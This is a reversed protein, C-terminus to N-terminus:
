RSWSWVWGGDTQAAIGEVNDSFGVTQRMLLPEFMVWHDPAMLRQWYKDFAFEPVYWKDTPGAVENRLHQKTLDGAEWLTKRLVPIYDRRVAYAGSTQCSTISRLFPQSTANGKDYACSLFIVPHEKLAEPIKALLEHVLSMNQVNWAVDDEFIMGYEVGAAWLSNLAKVHSQRCGENMPTLNHLATDVAEIRQCSLSAKSLQDKVQSRRDPRKALNIYVCPVKAKSINEAVDSLALDTSKFDTSVNAAVGYDDFDYTTSPDERHPASVTFSSQILNVDFAGEDDGNAAEDGTALSALLAIAISHLPSM